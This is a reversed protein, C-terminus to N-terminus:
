YLTRGREKIELHASKMDNVVSELAKWIVAANTHPIEKFSKLAYLVEEAM